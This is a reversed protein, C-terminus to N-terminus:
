AADPLYNDSNYMASFENNKMEVLFTKSQHFLVKEIPMDVVDGEGLSSIYKKLRRSMLWSTLTESTEKELVEDLRKELLELDLM